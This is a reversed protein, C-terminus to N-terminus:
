ACEDNAEYRRRHIWPLQDGTCSLNQTCIRIHSRLNKFTCRNNFSFPLALPFQCQLNPERLRFWMVFSLPYDVVLTLNYKALPSYPPLHPFQRSILFSFYKRRTYCSLHAKHIKTINMIRLVDVLLAHDVM